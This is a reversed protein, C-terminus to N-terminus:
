VNLSLDSNTPHTMTPPTVSCWPYLKRRRKGTTPKGAHYANDKLWNQTSNVWANSNVYTTDNRVRLQLQKRPLSVLILNRCPHKTSRTNKRPFITIPRLLQAYRQFSTLAKRYSSYLNNPERYGKERGTWVLNVCQQRWILRPPKEKNSFDPQSKASRKPFSTFQYIGNFSSFKFHAHLGIKVKGTALINKLSLVTM